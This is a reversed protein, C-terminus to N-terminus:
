NHSETIPHLWHGAVRFRAMRSSICGWSAVRIDCSANSGVHQLQQAAVWVGTCLGTM